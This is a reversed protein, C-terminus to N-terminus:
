SRGFKSVTEKMAKIQSRTDDDLTKDNLAMDVHHMCASINGTSLFYKAFSFHSLGDKGKKEYLIGLTYAARPSQSSFPLLTIIAEDYQGKGLMIDALANAAVSNKPDAKLYPYAKEKENLYYYDVGIWGKAQPLENNQLESLSEKFRGNRSNSIGLALNLYTEPMGTSRIKIEKSGMLGGMVTSSLLWYRSDPKPPTPDEGVAAIRDQTYPHTLMYQPINTTDSYARLRILFRTMASPDMNSDKLLRRAFEDAEKENTRTYALSMNQAGGLSSMLIASGIAPNAVTVVAGLIMGIVSAATIKAQNDMSNPIHRLQCHGMEHAMVAALEDMDKVFILTGSNIYIHGDTIAFANISPDKVIQVKINYLRDKIHDSLQDALSQVIWAAESDHLIYGGAELYANVDKSIEQEKEYGVAFVNSTWASIVALIILAKKMSCVYMGSLNYALHM